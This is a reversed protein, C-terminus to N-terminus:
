RQSALQAKQDVQTHAPLVHVGALGYPSQQVASRPDTTALVTLEILEGPLLLARQDAQAPRLHTRQLPPQLLALLHQGLGLPVRGLVAPLVRRVQQPRQRVVGHRRQFDELHQRAASVPRGLQPLQRIQATVRFLPRLGLSDVDPQAGGRIESSYGIM